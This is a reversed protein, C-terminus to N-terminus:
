SELSGELLFESSALCELGLAGSGADFPFARCPDAMAVM